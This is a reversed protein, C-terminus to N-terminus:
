ESTQKSNHAVRVLAPRLLRERLKYGRRIEEAVHQDPMDDREVSGLAEHVRPDFVEGVAPVAVVQMQRLIEEMQKVILTVGSRLQEASGTSKLALEFNDVVPLFQEVVNGTAYDRFEIREREARKRANDFEAQLRAVRDLLQDREAKLQELESPGAAVEAAAAPESSAAAAQGEASEEAAGQEIELPEMVNVETEQKPM